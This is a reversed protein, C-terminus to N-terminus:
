VFYEAKTEIVDKLSNILEFPSIKNSKLFNVLNRRHIEIASDEDLYCDSQNYAKNDTFRVLTPTLRLITKQEIGRWGNVKWCKRGELNKNKYSVVSKITSQRM